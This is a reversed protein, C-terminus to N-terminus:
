RQHKLGHLGDNVMQPRIHHHKRCQATHRHHIGPQHVHTAIGKDLPKCVHICLQQVIFCVGVGQKGGTQGIFEHGNHWRTLRCSQGFLGGCGNAMSSFFPRHIGGFTNELRHIHGHGIHCAVLDVYLQSTKRFGTPSSCIPGDIAFAAFVDLCGASTQVRCHVGNMRIQFLLPNKLVIDPLHQGFFEFEFIQAKPLGVGANKVGSHIFQGFPCQARGLGCPWKSGHQLFAVAAGQGALGFPQGIVTGQQPKIAFIAFGFADPAFQGFGFFGPDFATLM